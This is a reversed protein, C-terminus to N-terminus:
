LEEDEMADALNVLAEGANRAADMVHLGRARLALRVPRRRGRGDPQFQRADGSSTRTATTSRM